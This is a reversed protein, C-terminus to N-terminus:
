SLPPFMADKRKFYDRMDDLTKYDEDFGIMKKFEDMGPRYTEFPVDPFGYEGMKDHMVKEFYKLRNYQMESSDNFAYLKIRRDSKSFNEFFGEREIISMIKSICEDFSFKKFNAMSEDSVIVNADDNLACVSIVDDDEDTTICISPNIELIYSTLGYTTKDKNNQFILSCVCVAMFVFCALSVALRFLVPRKESNAIFKDKTSIKADKVKDSMEINIDLNEKKLKEQLEKKNM